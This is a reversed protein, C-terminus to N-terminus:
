GNPAPGRRPSTVSANQLYADAARRTVAGPQACRFGTGARRRGEPRGRDVDTTV